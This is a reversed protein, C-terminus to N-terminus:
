LLDLVSKTEASVLALDEDTLPETKEAVVKLKGLTDKLKATVMENAGAAAQEDVYKIFHDVVEPVKLITEAADRKDAGSLAQAVLNTGELWSGAQILPVVWGVGNFELEPIGVRSLEDFELLLADRTVADGQVREAIDALTREIDSGGDLQTMGTKIQDIQKLLADKESSTVTLVMDALVVGTRVAARSKETSAMDYPRESVLSGLTTEIGSAELKKQTELPSPVAVEASPTVEPTAENTSPEEVAAPEAEPTPTSAFDCASVLALIGIAVSATLSRTM